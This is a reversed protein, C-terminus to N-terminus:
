HPRTAGGDSPADILAFQRATEANVESIEAEVGGAIATQALRADSAQSKLGDLEANLGDM